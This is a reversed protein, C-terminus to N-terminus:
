QAPPVSGAAAVSALSVPNSNPCGRERGRGTGALGWHHARSMAWAGLLRLWHTRAPSPFECSHGSCVHSCRHLLSSILCSGCSGTDLGATLARSTGKNAHSAERRGRAGEVVDRQLHRRRRLGAKTGSLHLSSSPWPLVRPHRHVQLAKHQSSVRPTGEPEQERWIQESCM